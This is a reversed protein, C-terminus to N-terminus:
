NNVSLGFVSQALRASLTSNLPNKGCEVPIRKCELNCRARIPEPLKVRISLALDPAVSYDKDPTILSAVFSSM